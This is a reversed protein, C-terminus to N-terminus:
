ISGFMAGNSLLQRLGFRQGTEAARNVTDPLASTHLADRRKTEPSRWGPSGLRESAVSRSIDMLGAVNASIADDLQRLHAAAVGISPM